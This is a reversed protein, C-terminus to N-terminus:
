GRQPKTTKTIIKDFILLMSPLVFIVCMMSILAGRAMMICLSSVVDISSYVGVGFTAAFFSLASVLISKSSVTLADSVAKHKEVGNTRDRRYRTTLLIAYDVTSGLQVTGIVISAIFPIETGTYCGIGLNIFIGLEIVAVLIFPLSISRFVLAIIVFIIGISVANVTNFDQDTIEILDKTSPAEGILLSNEDYSKAIKQLSEIQANVEDSAVKYKSGILVLQWNENELSDRIDDPIMEEPISSDKITNLGLVYKVGDTDEMENAMSKIDKDKVDSSILLVHTAQQDFEDALKENAVISDLDTPLSRDLNYYVNTHNYGYVAPILVALAIVMFVYAHKTVWGGIRGLDPLVAKHKTKMLLKDFVLILAPLVTVCCIVGLLVGKAMVLGLDLGLTFRMFCLAIFGAITTVSSGIISTFTECIAHEMAIYHDPDKECYATYSHWLFISYDLTVGLQLVAAIAKTVYSIQGLIANNSGLNYMIACGISALFLFPVLYSDMALMLVVVSLAVAIAIYIPAEKDALEKTDILVATMGSLFCQKNAIKRIQQCAQTTGDESTTQDFIIVMMTSDDKNFADYIEDPLMEKPISLDAFSDYWLVTKVHDVDEIRDKMEAVDKDDMGECIFMSFAGTGFEDQLIDQGKMTDIDQPLYTLMDYNVKTNIYGITAPILLAIAVLLVIVRYRVVGHAFKKLM